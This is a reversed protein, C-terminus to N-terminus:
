EALGVREVVQSDNLLLGAVVWGRFCAVLLGQREEGVQAVRNAAGFREVAESLECGSGRGGCPGPLQVRLCQGVGAVDTRRGFFRAGMFSEALTMQRCAVM